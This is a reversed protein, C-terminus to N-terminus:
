GAANRWNAAAAKAAEAMDPPLESFPGEAGGGKNGGPRWGARAALKCAWNATVEPESVM